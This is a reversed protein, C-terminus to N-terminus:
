TIGILIILSVFVIIRKYSLLSSSYCAKLLCAHHKTKVPRCLGFEEDFTM